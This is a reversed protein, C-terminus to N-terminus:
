SLYRLTAEILSATGKYPDGPSDYEMSCYGKYKANKLIGFTKEMDVSFTQGKDNAELAKVHCINYAHAFMKRIGDYAHEERGTVLSNAFDPLAHLWPSNVKEIVRVVFFPDESVPNDNEMCVIVNKRSAYEVVKTLSEAAREADPKSDRAPAMSTRISPSSLAVAADVWQESFTVSEERESKNAAYPSHESDVAINVIVGRAKEVASRIDALYEQDLSLFHESWPEIKRINFKEAVHAAFDKLEMKKGPSPPNTRGAIVDRFPYSAIAIRERPETSFRLGPQSDGADSGWASIAGPLLM